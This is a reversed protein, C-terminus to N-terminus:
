ACRELKLESRGGGVVVDVTKADEALRTSFVNRPLVQSAAREDAETGAAVVRYDGICLTGMGEEPVPVHLVLRARGCNHPISANMAFHQGRNTHWEVAVAGCMTKVVGSAQGLVRVAHPDPTVHMTVAAREEVSQAATAVANRRRLYSPISWTSPDLGTISYLYPGISATFMPHNHSNTTDDWSEWITGPGQKVMWGWSPMEERMAMALAIDGRGALVLAQLTFSAGVLGSSTANGKAEVNAVFSAAAQAKEAPPPIELILPMLNATQSGGIYSKAESDWYKSHYALKMKTLSVNYAAADAMKGLHAAMEVLHSTAMIQATAVVQPKETHELMLWDGYYGFEILGDATSERAFFDVNRKAGSYFSEVLHDDGGKWVTYPLVSSISGWSPDGPWGGVYMFPVVDAVSGGTDAFTGNPIGTFDCGFSKHAPTCCIDKNTQPFAPAAGGAACGVQDHDAMTQLWNGYLQRMDLNLSAQRSTFQADGTWGRKERVV